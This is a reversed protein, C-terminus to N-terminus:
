MKNKLEKSIQSELGFILNSSSEFIALLRRFVLNQPSEKIDMRRVKEIAPPGSIQGCM